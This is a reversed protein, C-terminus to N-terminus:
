SDTQRKFSGASPVGRRRGVLWGIFSHSVLALLIGRRRFCVLLKTRHVISSSSASYLLYSHPTNNSAYLVVVVLRSRSFSSHEM